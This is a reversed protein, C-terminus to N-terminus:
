QNWTVEGIEYVNSLGKLSDLKAKNLREIKRIAKLTGSAIGVYTNDLSLFPWSWIECRSLMRQFNSRSPHRFHVIKQESISKTLIEWQKSKMKLTILVERLKGRRGFEPQWTKEPANIEITQAM